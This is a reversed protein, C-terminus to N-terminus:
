IKIIHFVTFANLNYSRFLFPFQRIQIKDEKFITLIFRYIQLFHNRHEIAHVLELEDRKGIRKARRVSTCWRALRYIIGPDNPVMLTIAGGKKTVRRIEGLAELPDNLHHLVCTSITRDFMESPFTLKHCDEKALKISRAPAGTVLEDLSVEKIDTLFYETFDHAVFNLHEGKNGGIELCKEFHLTRYRFEMATHM